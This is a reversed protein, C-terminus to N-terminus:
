INSVFCLTDDNWRVKCMVKLRAVTLSGPLRKSMCEMTCSASALSRVTVNITDSAMAQQNGGSNIGGSMAAMAAAHAESLAGFRPHSKLVQGRAESLDTADREKISLERMAIRLYRKEAETREREEVNSANVMKLNAVRAILLSRSESGGINKTVPNRGFRLNTLKTYSNLNDISSWDSIANGTIQLSSLKSFLSATDNIAPSWEFAANSLPISPIENDNLIL